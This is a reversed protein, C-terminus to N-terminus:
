FYARAIMSVENSFDSELTRTNDYATVAFFYRTGPALGRVTYDTRQGVDLSSTYHRSRQGYYLRYGAVDVSPSADWNLTAQGDIAAIDLRSEVVSLLVNGFVGAADRARVAYIGPELLIVACADRATALARGLYLQIDVDCDDNFFFSTDDNVAIIDLSPDPIGAGGSGALSEATLVLTATQEVIFGLRIDTETVPGNYSVNLLPGATVTAASGALLFGLLLLPKWRCLDISM